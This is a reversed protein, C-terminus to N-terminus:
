KSSIDGSPFVNPNDHVSAGVSRVVNQAFSAYLLTGQGAAVKKLSEIPVSKCANVCDVIHQASSRQESEFPDDFGVEVWAIEAVSNRQRDATTIKLFDGDEVIILTQKNM